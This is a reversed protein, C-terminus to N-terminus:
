RKGGSAIVAEVAIVMSDEDSLEIKPIGSPSTVDDLEEILADAKRQVREYAECAKKASARVRQAAPMTEAIM